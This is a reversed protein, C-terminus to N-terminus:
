MKVFQAVLLIATWVGSACLAGLLLWLARRRGGAPVNMAAQTAEQLLAQESVGAAQDDRLIFIAQEFLRKEQPRVLVVQKTIGKVM